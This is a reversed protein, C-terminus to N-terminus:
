EHFSSGSRAGGGRHEARRRGARNESFVISDRCGNTATPMRMTNSAGFGIKRVGGSRHAFQNLAGFGKQALPRVILRSSSSLYRWGTNSASVSMDTLTGPTLM